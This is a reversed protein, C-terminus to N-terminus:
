APLLKQNGQINIPGVQKKIQKMTLKKKKKKTAAYSGSSGFPFMVM